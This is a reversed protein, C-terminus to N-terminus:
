ALNITKYRYIYIQLMYYLFYVGRFNTNFLRLYMRMSISFM